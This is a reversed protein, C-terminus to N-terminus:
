NRSVYYDKELKLLTMLIHGACLVASTITMIWFVMDWPSGSGIHEIILGGFDFVAHILVCLWINRGKLMTVTLMGGILFTYLCQLLVSSIDSSVPPLLNTLHFLSFILSCILTTLLPKHKKGKLLDEVILLIVGRFVLEELLAIGIVFLTYLGMLNINISATGKILVSYPYNVFAVMFCPLSWLLVRPFDRRFVFVKAGNTQYLLWVFLVSLGLRSLFGCLLKNADPDSLLKVPRVDFFVFCLVGLIFLLVTIVLNWKKMATIIKCLINVFTSAGRPRKKQFM